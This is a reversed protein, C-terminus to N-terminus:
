SAPTKPFSPTSTTPPSRRFTCDEDANHIYMCVDDDDDDDDDDHLHINIFCRVQDNARLALYISPAPPPPPSEVVFGDVCVYVCM